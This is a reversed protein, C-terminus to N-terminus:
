HLPYIKYYEFNCYLRDEPIIIYSDVVSETNPTFAKYIATDDKLNYVEKIKSSILELNQILQNYSVPKGGYKLYSKSPVNVIRDNTVVGCDYWYNDINNFNKKFDGITDNTINTDYYIIFDGITVSKYAVKLKIADTKYM